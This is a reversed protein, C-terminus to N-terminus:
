ISQLFSKELIHRSIGFIKSNTIEMVYASYEQSFSTVFLQYFWREVQLFPKELIQMFFKCFCRTQFCSLIFPSIYIHSSCLGMLSIIFNLFLFICIAHRVYFWSIGSYYWLTIHLRVWFIPTNISFMIGMIFISFYWFM